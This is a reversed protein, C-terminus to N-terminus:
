LLVQLDDLAGLVRRGRETLEFYRRKGETHSVILGRGELDSLHQYVAGLTMGRGMKNWLAYGYSKEVSLQRLLIEKTALKSGLGPSRKRSRLGKLIDNTKLGSSTILSVVTDSRDIEGGEILKPLCAVSSASAPEAFIGESRAIERGYELMEEDTVSVSLGDSERLADLAAEGYMPSAYKIASAVTEYIELGVPTTQNAAFADAIPSCGSAQVGILRPKGDIAERAELESFGKWLSHITVGSGMAVVVWDPVGGQECIEYSITKLAEVSLPNLETTAQYIGTEDSFGKAKEIAEGIGGPAEEVHADYAIMQALKGLDLDSPVILQCSLDEMASYAAISAGHNGNSACVVSDHARGVADSIMLAASRDKFSSTPNRTEDKLVLGSIGLNEGLREAKWLPTGGEGLSVTREVTPMVSRYRWFSLPGELDAERLRIPEIVYELVGGCEPCSFAEGIDVQSACERCVLSFPTDMGSSLQTITDKIM